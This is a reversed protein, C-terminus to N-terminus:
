NEKVLRVRGLRRKHVQEISAKLNPALWQIEGVKVNNNAHALMLRGVTRHGEDDINTNFFRNVASIEIDGHVLVVRKSLRKIIHEDIDSEDAIEGVLEEILDEMTVLGTVNGQKDQVIAMHVRGRKFDRMLDDILTEEEIFKAQHAIEGATVQMFKDITLEALRGLVDKVHITGIILGHDGTVPFRSYRTANMKELLEHLKATAEVTVMQEAPTLVDDATIDNFLFVREILEQEGTEVGGEDAAIEMMARIEEEGAESPGNPGAVARLFFDSVAVVPTFCIMLVQVTRALPLAFREPRHNALTKPVLNIFIFVVLTMVVTAIGIGAAGWMEEAAIAVLSSAMLHLVTQGLLITSLLKRPDRKLKLALVARRDHKALAAAKAETLSLFSAEVAEFVAALMLFVAAFLFMWM